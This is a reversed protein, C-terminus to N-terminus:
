LLIENIFMINVHVINIYCENMDTLIGFKFM